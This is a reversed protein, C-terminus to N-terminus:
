AKSAGAAAARKQEQAVFEKFAQSKGLVAKIGGDASVYVTAVAYGKTTKVVGTLTANGVLAGGDEGVLRIPENRPRSM